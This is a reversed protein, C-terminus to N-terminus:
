KLQYRADTSLLALDRIRIVDGAEWDWRISKRGANSYEDSVSLKGNGSHAWNGPITELIYAEADGTPGGKSESLIMDTVYVREPVSEPDLTLLKALPIRVAEAYASVSCVLALVFCSWCKMNKM